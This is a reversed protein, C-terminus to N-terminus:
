EGKRAPIGLLLHLVSLQTGEVEGDWNVWQWMQM